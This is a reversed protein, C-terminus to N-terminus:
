CKLRQDPGRGQHAPVQWTLAATFVTCRHHLIHSYLEPFLRFGTPHNTSTQSPHNTSTQSPHPTPLTSRGHYYNYTSSASTNNARRTRSRIVGNKASNTISSSYKMYLNTHTPKRYVSTSKDPGPHILVDLFPLFGDPSLHEMTFTLYLHPLQPFHPLERCPRLRQM